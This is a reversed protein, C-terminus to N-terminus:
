EEKPANSDRCMRRLKLVRAHCEQLLERRNDFSMNRKCRSIEIKLMQYPHPGQQDDDVESIYKQYCKDEYEQWLEKLMKGETVHDVREEYRPYLQFLYGAWMAGAM